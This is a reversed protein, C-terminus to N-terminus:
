RKPGIYQLLRKDKDAIDRCRRLTPEMVELIVLAADKNYEHFMAELLIEFKYQLSINRDKSSHEVRRFSDEHEYDDLVAMLTRADVMVKERHGRRCRDNHIEDKLKQVWPSM